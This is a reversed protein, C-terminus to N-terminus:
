GWLVSVPEIYSLGDIVRVPIDTESVLDLLKKVLPEGIFPSGPVAFTLECREKAIQIMRRWINKPKKWIKAKLMIKM